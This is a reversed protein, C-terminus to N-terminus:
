FGYRAPHRGIIMAAVVKPVYDRTEEPLAHVRYLYWFNRQMIPDQVRRIAQKVKTPGLNYAALALMVSSGAGFDLILGRIYKAAARTSKDVNLRDDVNKDVRLGLARATAPTFQWLGAGGGAGIRSPDMASEVLVMYAFDRPLGARDLISEVREIEPRAEGLARAMNTRDPGQYRVLESKVAELFEPPISYIEAGFEAMLTRIETALFDQPGRASWRYFVNSELAQAEKQYRDLESILRDARVPNQSSAQLSRELAALRADIGARERRLSVIKWAGIGVAAVLLCALAAIVRRFRRSSHRLVSVLMERMIAGTQDLGGARRAMRAHVVAQELLRDHGTGLPSGAAAAPPTFAPAAVTESLDGFATDDAAVLILEPGGSGLQIVSRPGIAAEPTREGDVFTGNTSGLDRILWQGDQRRIEAHRASVVTANAGSLVVDNGVARGLRTVPVRLAYRAGAQPGEKRLLFFAPEERASGVEAV